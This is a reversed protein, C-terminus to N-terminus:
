LLDEGDVSVGIVEIERHEISAQVEKRVFLLNLFSYM